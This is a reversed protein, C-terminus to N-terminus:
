KRKKPRKKKSAGAAGGEGMTSTVLDTVDKSGAAASSTKPKGFTPHTAQEAVATRNQMRAM